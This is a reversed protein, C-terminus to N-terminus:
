GPSMAIIRRKRMEKVVAAAVTASAVAKVPGTVACPTGVTSVWFM